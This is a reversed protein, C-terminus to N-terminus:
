NSSYKIYRKMDIQYPVIEAFIQNDRLFNQISEAERYRYTIANTFIYTTQLQLYEGMCWIVSIYKGDDQVLQYQPM